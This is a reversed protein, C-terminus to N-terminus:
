GDVEVRSALRRKGRGVVYVEVAVLATDQYGAVAAKAWATLDDIIPKQTEADRVFITLTDDRFCLAPADPRVCDTHLIATAEVRGGVDLVVAGKEDCSHPRCATFRYLEGIRVPEDPPGGLVSMQQDALTGRYLYHVRGPGVFARVARQFPKDWVLINTNRCLAPHRLGCDPPPPAPAKAGLVALAACAAIM